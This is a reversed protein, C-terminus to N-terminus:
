RLERRILDGSPNARLLPTSLYPTCLLDPPQDSFLYEKYTWNQAMFVLINSLLYESNYNNLSCKYVSSKVVLLLDIQSHAHNGLLFGLLDFSKDDNEENDNDHHHDHDHGHSQVEAQTISDNFGEHEHHVHPLVQHLLFISFISLFFISSIKNYRKLM